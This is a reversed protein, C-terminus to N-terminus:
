WYIGLYGCFRMGRMEIFSSIHGACDFKCGSFCLYLLDSEGEADGGYFLQQVLM